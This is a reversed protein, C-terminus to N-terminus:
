VINICGSMESNFTAVVQKIMTEEASGEAIKSSDIEYPVANNPWRRSLINIGNREGEGFLIDFQNKTLIIDDIRVETGSLKMPQPKPQSKPQPKSQPKPQNNISLQESIKILPVTINYLADIIDKAIDVIKGTSQDNNSYEKEIEFEEVRKLENYESEVEEEYDFIEEMEQYPLGQAIHFLYLLICFYCLITNRLSMM